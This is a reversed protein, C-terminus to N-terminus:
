VADVAIDPVKGPKAGPFLELDGILKKLRDSTLIQQSLVALREKSNQTVLSPVYKDPIKQAEVIIVAEAFYVAPMTSIYIWAGATVVAAIALATFKRKWIARIISLPLFEPRVFQDAFSRM